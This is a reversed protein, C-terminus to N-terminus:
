YAQSEGKFEDDIFPVHHVEIDVEMASEDRKIIHDPVTKSIVLFRNKMEDHVFFETLHNMDDYFLHGLASALVEKSHFEFFFRCLRGQEFNVADMYFVPEVGANGKILTWPDFLNLEARFLTKSNKDRYSVQRTSDANEHVIVEGGDGVKCMPGLGFDIVGDKNKDSVTRFVM